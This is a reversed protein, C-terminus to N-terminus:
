VVLENRRPAALRCSAQVHVVRVMKGLQAVPAQNHGEFTTYCWIEAPVLVGFLLTQSKNFLQPFVRRAFHFINETCIKSAFSKTSRLGLGGVVHHIHPSHYTIRGNDCVRDSRRYRATCHQAVSPCATHRPVWHRLGVGASCLCVATSQEDDVLPSELPRASM